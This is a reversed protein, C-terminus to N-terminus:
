VDGELVDVCQDHALTFEARELFEISVQLYRRCM